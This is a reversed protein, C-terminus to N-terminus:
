YLRTKLGAKTRLGGQASSEEVISHRRVARERFRAKARLEFREAVADRLVDVLGASDKGIVFVLDVLDIRDQGAAETEDDRPCM